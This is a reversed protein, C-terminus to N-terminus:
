TNFLFGMIIKQVPPITGVPVNNFNQMGGHGSLLPVVLLVMLTDIM